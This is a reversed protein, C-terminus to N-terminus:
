VRHATRAIVEDQMAPSLRVFYDSYGGVRVVLDSYESPNERAKLLTDQDVTNIQLEFGGRQMFTKVLGLMMATSHPGFLTKSFKMNVAIGGIFPDHVWKTSSLLSATPGKKERGQVPGSGDGLPFGAPRGDPTAGTQRGFYEHQIWCFLSPIFRSGRTTTLGDCIHALMDTVRLVLADVVPDENGYHPLRELMRRRLAEHGAFNERLIATLDPLSYEGGTFVLADLAALSDVLNAMGVFSPM